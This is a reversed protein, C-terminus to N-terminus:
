YRAGNHRTWTMGPSRRIRHATSPRLAIRPYASSMWFTAIRRKPFPAGRRFREEHLLSRINKASPFLLTSMDHITLVYPTPMWWAVSNLPIHYLDAKLSRFFRPTTIFNHQFGSDEKNFALLTFNPGLGSLLDFDERHAVITYRNASDVQSLARTINRIYTGIGFGRVRRGDIAIHLPM